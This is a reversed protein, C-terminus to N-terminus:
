QLDYRLDLRGSRTIGNTKTGLKQLSATVASLFLKHVGNQAGIALILDVKRKEKKANGAEMKPPNWLSSLEPLLPFNFKHYDTDGPSFYINLISRLTNQICIVTKYSATSVEHFGTDSITSAPPPTQAPTPPAMVASNQERLDPKPTWGDGPQAYDGAASFTEYEDDDSQYASTPTPESQHMEGMLIQALSSTSDRSTSAGSIDSDSLEERFLPPMSVPYTGDKYGQIISDLVADRTEGQFHIVLDEYMPLVTEFLIDVHLELEEMSENDETDETDETDEADDDCDLFSTDIWTEKDVYDRDPNTGTDVYVPRRRRVIMSLDLPSPPERRITPRSPTTFTPRPIQTYEKSRPPTPMPVPSSSNIPSPSQRRIMTMTPKIFTPRPIQSYLKPEHSQPEPSEIQPLAYEASDDSEQSISVLSQSFNCLSIDQNRVASAYIRGVSRIRKHATRNTTSGRIDVALARGFIVAPSNPMSELTPPSLGEITSAPQPSRTGYAEGVCSPSGPELNPDLPGNTFTTATSRPYFMTSSTGFRLWSHSEGNENLTGAGYFSAAEDWDDAYRRLPVSLSRSRSAIAFDIDNNPQLFATQRDLADAARMARSIPDNPLLPDEQDNLDSDQIFSTSSPRSSFDIQKQLGAVGNQVLENFIVAAQDMDGGADHQAIAALCSLQASATGGNMLLLRKNDPSSERLFSHAMDARAKCANHIKLIHTRADFASHTDEEEIFHQLPPLVLIKSSSPILRLQTSLIDRSGELAVLSGHYDCTGDRTTDMM